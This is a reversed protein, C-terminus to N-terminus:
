ATEIEEEGIKKLRMQAAADEESTFMGYTDLTDGYIFQAGLINYFNGESDVYRATQEDSPIPKAWYPKPAVFEGDTENLTTLSACCSGCSSGFSTGSVYVVWGKAVMKDFAATEQANPESNGIGININGYTTNITDAINQVSATDLKCNSFM